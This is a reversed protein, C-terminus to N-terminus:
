VPMMGDGHEIRVRKDAWVMTGGTQEMAKLFAETTRDGVAHVLLTQNQSSCIRDLPSASSASVAITCFVSPISPM